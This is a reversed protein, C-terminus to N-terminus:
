NGKLAAMLAAVGEDREYAPWLHIGSYGKCRATLAEAMIASAADRPRPESSVPWSRYPVFPGGISLIKFVGARQATLPLVGSVQAASNRAVLYRSRDIWSGMPLYAEAWAAVWPSALLRQYGKIQPRLTAWDIQPRTVTGGFDLWDCHTALGGSPITEIVDM